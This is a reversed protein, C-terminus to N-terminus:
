DDETEHSNFLSRLDDVTLRASPGKKLKIPGEGLASNIMEQKKEQLALIRDEVTEAITIRHVTVEKRQGYRHVRDIAQNEVAPNWWADLLIVHNACTLNLGLSGCKLSVLLVTIRPNERFRTIADNRETASMAGDFREFKYGKQKIAEECLDLMGIFQSFV